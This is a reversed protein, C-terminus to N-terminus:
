ASRRALLDEIFAAPDTWYSTVGIGQEKRISKFVSVFQDKSLGLFLRFILMGGEFHEDLLTRVDDTTYTKKVRLRRVSEVVRRSTDDQWEVTLPRLSALIDQLKQAIVEM